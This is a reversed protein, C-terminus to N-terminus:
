ERSTGVVASVAAATPDTNEFVDEDSLGVFFEQNGEASELTTDAL